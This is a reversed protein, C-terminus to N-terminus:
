AGGDVDCDCEGEEREDEAEWNDVETDFSERVIDNLQRDRGALLPLWTGTPTGDPPLGLADRVLTPLQRDVRSGFEEDAARAVLYEWCAESAGDDADMWCSRSHYSESRRSTRATVAEELTDACFCKEEVDCSCKADACRLKFGWKGDARQQVQHQHMLAAQESTVPPLSSRRARKRAERIREDLVTALSEAFDPHLVHECFGTSDPDPITIAVDHTRTIRVDWGKAKLDDLGFPEETRAIFSM